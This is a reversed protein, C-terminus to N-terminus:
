IVRALEHFEHRFIVDFNLVTLKLLQNPDSVSIYKTIDILFGTM